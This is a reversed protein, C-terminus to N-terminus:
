SRQSKENVRTMAQTTIRLTVQLGFASCNRDLQFDVKLSNAESTPTDDGLFSDDNVEEVEPNGKSPSLPSSCSSNKKVLM